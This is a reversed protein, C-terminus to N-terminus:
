RWAWLSSRVEEPYALNTGDDPDGDLWKSDWTLMSGLRPGLRAKGSRMPRGDLGSLLGFHRRFRGESGDAGPALTLITAIEDARAHLDLARFRLRRGLLVDQM